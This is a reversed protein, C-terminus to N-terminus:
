RALLDGCFAILATSVAAPQEWQMFHGSDSVVIPGTLDRYTARCRAVADLPLTVDDPGLLVMVPQDVGGELMEPGSVPYKGAMIEYDHFSTRLRTRDAFPATLLDLEERAFAGPPCWKRHAYFTEM